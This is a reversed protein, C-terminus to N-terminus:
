DNDVFISSELGFEFALFFEPALRDQRSKADLDIVQKGRRLSTLRCRAQPYTGTVRAEPGHQYSRFIPRRFIFLALMPRLGM